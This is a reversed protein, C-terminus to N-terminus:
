PPLRMSHQQVQVEARVGVAPSTLLSEHTVQVDGYQGAPNFQAIQSTFHAVLSCHGPRLQM